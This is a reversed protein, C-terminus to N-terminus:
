TLKGKTCVPLGRTEVEGNKDFWITITELVPPITGDDTSIKGYGHLEIPAFGRKPLTTPTFGGDTVVVIHGVHLRLALASGAGVLAVVMIVLFTRLLSKRM